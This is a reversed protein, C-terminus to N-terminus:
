SGGNRVADGAILRAARAHGELGEFDAFVAAAPALGAAAEQSFYLLSTRKVFTEVGLPSSFRAGGATPLTHSPGAVYDGLAASTYAGILIAGANEVHPLLGWPDRVVVHLHEPAYLNIVKAAEALDRTLVLFGNEGTSGRAAEARPLAEGQREIERLLASAFAEDPTAVLVSSDAGHEAQALLDAAAHAPDASDDALLAVESPGALMDIGVSGYVLRKAIDVYRSGPGAVVDVAPVSETAYAFAAVAQSGGMGFVADVGALRAAALTADAPFGTDRNPPTALLVEAVGAVRAPIATMLVTSPYDATGGPAYLGARRVPRVIQGLIEGPRSADMWTERRQREHFRHIRGAATEMASWLPTRRISEVAADIREDPVRLTEVKPSSWRRTFDLVAADGRARVEALIVRVDAEVRDVSEGRSRAAFVSALGDVGDRRTDFWRM